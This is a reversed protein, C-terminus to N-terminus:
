FGAERFLDTMRILRRALSGAARSHLDAALARGEPTDPIRDFDITIVEAATAARITATRPVDAYHAIEGVLAGPLFRAVVVPKGQKVAVEAQLEGARLQYISQSRDGEHVLIDGAALSVSQAFSETEIEPHATKLTALIDEREPDADRSGQSLLQDEIWVLADDLTPYIKVDPIGVIQGHLRKSSGALVFTAGHQACLEAMRQFALSATSDTGTVRALNVVVFRPAGDSAFADRLTEFLRHATGFFVFGTLELIEAKRGLDALLAM